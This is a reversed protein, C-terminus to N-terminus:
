SDLSGPAQACRLWAVQLGSICVRTVEHAARSNKALRAQFEPPYSQPDWRAFATRNKTPVNQFREALLRQDAAPYNAM